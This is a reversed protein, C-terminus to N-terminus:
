VSIQIAEFIRQQVEKTAGVGSVVKLLGKEAYFKLIPGTDQHFKALRKKLTDENDDTRQIVREAIEPPPPSFLTHYIENTVPDIRRGSIRQIIEEDPVKIRLAHDIVCSAEQLANDLARAQPLTRPFGDLLFGECADGRSIREMIIGIVLDDPVLAGQSMYSEAEKGLASGEAVAERLMDGSSIHPIGLKTEILHAQTGKGSGPPGILIVRMENGEDNM